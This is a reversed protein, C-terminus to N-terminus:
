HKKPRLLWIGKFKGSTSRYDILVQLDGNGRRKIEITEDLSLEEFEESASTKTVVGSFSYKLYNRSTEWTGRDRFLPVAFDTCYAKLNPSSLVGPSIWIEDAVLKEGSEKDVYNLIIARSRTTGEADPPYHRALNVNGIDTRTECTNNYPEPTSPIVALSNQEVTEFVGYFESLNTQPVNVNEIVVEANQYGESVAPQGTFGETCASILFVSLVLALNKM